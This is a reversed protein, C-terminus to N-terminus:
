GEVVLDAATKEITGGCPLQLKGRGSQVSQESTLCGSSFLKGTLGVGPAAQAHFPAVALELSTPRDLIFPLQELERGFRALIHWLCTTNCTPACPLEVDAANSAISGERVDQRAVARVAVCGQLDHKADM